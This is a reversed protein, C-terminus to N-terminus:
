RAATMHCHGINRLMDRVLQAALVNSDLVTYYAISAHEFSFLLKLRLQLVPSSGAVSLGLVLEPAEAMGLSFLRKM